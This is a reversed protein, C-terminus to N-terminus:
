AGPSRCACTSPVHCSHDQCRSADLPKKTPYTGFHKEYLNITETFAEQLLTHDEKGYIGFYPYHDIFRGFVTECDERYARTDLIHAHWIVDVQKSPVLAANPYLHKLALFRRYERESLDWERATMKADDSHVYKHKLRDFDLHKVVLPLRPQEDIASLVSALGGAPPIVQISVTKM